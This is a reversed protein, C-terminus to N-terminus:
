RIMEGIRSVGDIVAAAGARRMAESARAKNDGPAPVGIPLVRACRAAVMDDPTDGIMWVCRVGLEDLARQVPEPSPKAPADEMCVLTAYLERIGARELFWEAERRPRGTVVALTFREALAQLTARDPILRETERLGPKSDTGEYIRQFRDIVESLGCAVGREEILRKTLEWDNNAGGARKAASIDGAALAVGFSRATEVIVSRYSGSVDALVGDLDFLIAEPALITRLARVLRDFAAEDGPLTIRLFGDLEPRSAFARVGIGLSALSNWVFRADAFRATVFNAQSDLVTYGFTRLLSSLEERESRVNNVFARQEGASRLSALAITASISSVPYPGGVTRLWHAVESSALAYGVRAGALGMAKSFTRVVIVNPEDLLSRTPDENAFEIYAFDALVLAGVRAAARVVEMMGDFSIVSGTPNNPSVIAVLSTAPSIAAVCERVPFAGEIWEISRVEGGALRVGREIMEFTPHHLVAERGPELVAGCAREIADDGGNTVVVREADICYTDALARELEGTDPYRRLDEASIGTLVNELVNEPAMGENADLTLDVFPGSAPPEYPSLGRLRGTPQLRCQESTAGTHMM